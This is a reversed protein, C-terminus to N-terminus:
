QLSVKLAVPVGDGTHGEVGVHFLNTRITSGLLFDLSVQKRVRLLLLLWDVKQMSRLSNDYIKHKLTKSLFEIYSNPKLM